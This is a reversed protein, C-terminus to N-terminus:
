TQITSRVADGSFFLGRGCLFPRRLISQFVSVRGLFLPRRSGRRGEQLATDIRPQNLIAYAAMGHEKRLLERCFREGAECRELNRKQMELDTVDGFRVRVYGDDEFVKSVESKGSGAMGVIAVVKRM